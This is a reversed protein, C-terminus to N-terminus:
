FRVNLLSFFGREYRSQFDQIENTIQNINFDKWSTEYYIEMTQLVDNYLGYLRKLYSLQKKITQLHIYETKDLGFLAEGAVFTEYRKWLDNFRSESYTLRDSAEQAPLGEIMPGNQDYDEVFDAVDNKFQKMDILFRELFSQQANVLDHTVNKARKLLREHTSRLMDVAMQEEQPIDISYRKFLNYM